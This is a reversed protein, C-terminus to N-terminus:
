PLFDFPARGIDSPDGVVFPTGSPFLASLWTYTGVPLGGPLPVSLLTAAIPVPTIGTAIPVLGPVLGGLTLSFLEGTPLQLVIFADVPASLTGPLLRASLTLTQGPHLNSQGLSLALSPLVPAPPTGCSLGSFELHDRNVDPQASPTSVLIGSGESRLNFDGADFLQFIAPESGQGLLTARGLNGLNSEGASGPALAGASYGAIVAGGVLDMRDYELVIRGSNEPRQPVGVLGGVAFGLDTPGEAAAPSSEDIGTGDDFLSISFSNRQGAAEAAFQPVDIWRLKFHNIGAFGLAQVPFSATSVARAIPNLDTWAGAIRAPGALFASATPVNSTDGAGFSISGNSNLFFQTQPAPCSAGGFVFEFGGGADDGLRPAFVDDGGAVQESPDFSSFTVPGSTEDDGQPTGNPLTPFASLNTRTRNLYMLFGRSLGAIGTPLLTGPDLPAQWFIHDFRDSVGDGANTGPGAPAPLTGAARLDVFDARRDAPKRDPFVLVEGLTPSPDLGVLAPTGGSVVYVKRAEDVALGGFITYDVQFDVKLTDLPSGLVPSGTRAEPGTGHVFVRFNNVGPAVAGPVVPDAFGDPAPVGGASAYDAFSIVMSPTPPLGAPNAFLGETAQTAPDDTAVRSRAVAAYLTNGPGAALATINGFIGATGSYNTFTNVQSAPGSATGYVGNTPDLTSLNIIGSTAGSRDYNTGTRTVKVINAGTLGALDVQQFYVSGDDDVACGALNDFASFAVGFAGGVTVPFGAASQVAPPPVVPSPMDAIPFALLGSRAPLSNAGVTRFGGGADWFTVYLLDGIRGNFPAFAANVNAFATHDAVPNVCLGTIVIHSSSQLTGFANMITPLNLVTPLGSSGPFFSSSAVVYVNGVSDGVYFVNETFGNAITHESVAVRTVVASGAPAAFAAAAHDAVLDERGDWDGLIAAELFPQGLGAMVAASFPANPSIIGKLGAVATVPPVVAPTGGAPGAGRVAGGAAGDARPVGLRDALREAPSPEAAAAARAASPGAGMGPGFGLLTVAAVISAALRRM